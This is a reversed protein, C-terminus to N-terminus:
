DSGENLLSNVVAHTKEFPQSPGPASQLRGKRDVLFTAPYRAIDRYLSPVKGSITLLPYTIPIQQVFKRQTPVDEDSIGFVMLGQDKRERYLQDLKPMEDRCPGCWTAWINVIVVHGYYDALRQPKGAIDVTDFAPAAVDRMALNGIQRARTIGDHIPSWVLGLSLVALTLGIKGSLSFRQARRDNWALLATLAFPLLMAITSVTLRFQWDKERDSSYRTLAGYVLVYLILAAFPSFIGAILVRYKSLKSM